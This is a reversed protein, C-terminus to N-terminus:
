FTHYNSNSQVDSDHWYEELCELFWLQIFMINKNIMM